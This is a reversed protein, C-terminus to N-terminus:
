LDLSASLNIGGSVSASVGLSVGASLGAGSGFSLGIGEGGPPRVELATYVLQLEEVAIQGNQANLAPGRLKVPLCERLVFSVQPTGDAASVTILGEASGNSGPQSASTFWRWLDFNATMGRKLTLQGYKVPGVRHQQQINNGGEVIAKPEM